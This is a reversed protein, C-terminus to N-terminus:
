VDLCVEKPPEPLPMWYFPETTYSKSWVWREIGTHYGRHRIRQETRICWRKNSKFAVLVKVKNRSHNDILDFYKEPTLDAFNIWDSM